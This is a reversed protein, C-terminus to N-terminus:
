GAKQKDIKKLCSVLVDVTGEIGLKDTALCLDYTSAAGWQTDALQEYYAAREKDVQFIKNKAEETSLKDREVLRGIRQELAATIFVSFVKYNKQLIQDARRGVIVCPGQAAVQEIIARQAQYALNELSSYKQESVTGSYNYLMLSPLSKEDTSALFKSSLGSSRAAQKLIETDYYPIHLKEAVQKGITRGGAGYSRGITIITSVLAGLRLIDNQSLINENKEERNLPVCLTKYIGIFAFGSVFFTLVDAAGMFYLIGDLGFFIPLLLPLGVGGVIERLM